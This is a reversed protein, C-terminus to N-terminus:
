RSTASWARPGARRRAGGSRASGAQVNPTGVKLMRFLAFGVVAAAGFVIAPQRRAFDSGEHFLDDISKQRVQAAFSDMQRAAGRALEAFQPANGSLDDAACGISHALSSAFEAGANVQHNLLDKVSGTAQSSLDALADKAQDQVQQATETVQRLAENAHDTISRGSGDPQASSSSSPFNGTQQTDLADEMSRPVMLVTILEEFATGCRPTKPEPSRSRSNFDSGFSFRRGVQQTVSARLSLLVSTNQAVYNLFLLERAANHRYFNM